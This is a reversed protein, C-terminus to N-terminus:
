PWTYIFESKGPASATTERVTIGTPHSLPLSRLAEPNWTLSRRLGGNESPEFREAVPVGGVSFLFTPVGGADLRYGEFQRAM